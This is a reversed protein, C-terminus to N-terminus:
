NKYQYLGQESIPIVTPDSSSRLFGYGVFLSEKFQVFHHIPYYLDDIVGNPDLRIPLGTRINEWNGADSNWKLVGGLRTAIFIENEVFEIYLAWNIVEGDFSSAYKTTPITDTLAVWSNNEYIRIIEPYNTAIYWNNKHEQFATLSSVRSSSDPVWNGDIFEGDPVRFLYPRDGTPQYGGNQITMIQGNKLMFFKRAGGYNNNFDVIQEPFGDEIIYTVTAAFSGYLNGEWFVIDDLIFPYTHVIRGDDEPVISDWNEFDSTVHITDAVWYYLGNNYTIPGPFWSTSKLKIWTDGDESMYLGGKNPTERSLREDEASVFIRDNIVKIYHISLEDFIEVRKWELEIPLNNSDKCSTFAILFCFLLSGKRFM